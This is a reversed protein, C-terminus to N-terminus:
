ANIINMTTFGFQAGCSVPLFEQQTTDFSIPDLGVPHLGTFNFNKNPNQQSNMVVLSADSYGNEPDYSDSSTPGGALDQMWSFIENYNAFDEDVLFEISLPSFQLQDGYVSILKVQNPVSIEPVSIGPIETKQCYYSTRPLKDINLRFNVNTLFNTPM